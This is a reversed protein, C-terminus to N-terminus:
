AIMMTLVVSLSTVLMTSAVVVISACGFKFKYDCPIAQRASRLCPEIAKVPCAPSCGTSYQSAAMTMVVSWGTRDSWESEM